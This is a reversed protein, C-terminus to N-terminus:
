KFLKNITTQPVYTYRGQKIKPIDNRNILEHLGKESIGFKQQVEGITYCQDIDFTNTEKQPPDTKITELSVLLGNLDSRRVITRSGIKIIKLQGREILRYSTRRSIGVLRCLENISLFEKAKLEEIPQTRIIRTEKNSVTVKQKRQKLKYDASNCKHSCYRTTTTKATFVNGCHECIRQVKINSSM